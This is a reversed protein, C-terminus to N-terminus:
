PVEREQLAKYGVCLRRNHCLRALCGSKIAGENLRINKESM